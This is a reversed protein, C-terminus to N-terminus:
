IRRFSVFFLVRATLQILESFISPRLPSWVDFFSTAQRWKSEKINVSLLLHASVCFVTPIGMSLARDVMYNIYNLQWATGCSMSGPLHCRQGVESSAMNKQRMGKIVVQLMSCNTVCSMVMWPHPCRKWWMQPSLHLSKPSPSRLRDTLNRLAFPQISRTKNHETQVTYLELLEVCTHPWPCYCVFVYLFM